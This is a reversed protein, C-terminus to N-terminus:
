AMYHSVDKWTLVLLRHLCSPARQWLWSLKGQPYDASFIKPGWNTRQYRSSVYYVCTEGPKTVGRKVEMFVQRTPVLNDLVEQTEWCRWTGEWVEMNRGSKRHKKMKRIKICVHYSYSFHHHSTNIYLHSYQVTVKLCCENISSSQIGLKSNGSCPTPLPPPLFM